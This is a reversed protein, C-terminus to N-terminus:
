DNQNRRSPKFKPLARCKLGLPHCKILTLVCIPEGDDSDIRARLEAIHQGLASSDAVTGELTRVAQVDDGQHDFALALGYRAQARQIEDSANVLPKYLEIARATDGRRM